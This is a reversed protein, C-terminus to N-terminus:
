NQIPPLLELNFEMEAKDFFIKEQQATVPSPAVSIAESNPDIIANGIGNGNSTEKSEM